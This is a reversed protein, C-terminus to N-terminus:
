RADRAALTVVIRGEALHCGAVPRGLQTRLLGALPTPRELRVRMVVDTGSFGVIAVGGVSSLASIRAQIEDLEGLDAVPGVVIEVSADSRAPADDLSAAHQDGRPLNGALSAEPGSLVQLTEPLPPRAVPEADTGRLLADVAADDVVRTPDDANSTAFPAPSPDDAPTSPSADTAPAATGTAPSGDTAPAPGTTPPAPATPPSTLGDTNTQDRLLSPDLLRRVVSEDLPHHALELAQRAESVAEEIRGLLTTVVQNVNTTAVATPTPAEGPLPGADAVPAADPADPRAGDPAVTVDDAPPVDPADTAAAPDPDGSPDVPAVAAPDAGGSPDVPAAPAADGPPAPDATVTAAGATAFLREVAAAAEAAAAEARSM